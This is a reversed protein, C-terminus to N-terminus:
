TDNVLVVSVIEISKKFLKTTVLSYISREAYFLLLLFFFYIQLAYQIAYTHCINIAHVRHRKVGSLM